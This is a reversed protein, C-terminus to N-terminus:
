PSAPELLLPTKFFEDQTGDSLRPEPLRWIRQIPSMHRDNPATLCSKGQRNHYNRM